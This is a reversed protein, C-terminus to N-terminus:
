KSCRKYRTVAECFTIFEEQDLDQKMLNIWKHVWQVNDKTYGKKSDIRDLSATTEGCWDGKITNSIGIPLGTLACRCSQERYLLDYLFGKSEKDSEGLDLILNRKKAGYKIRGWIRSNLRGKHKHNSCRRCSLSKGLSLHSNYVSKEIGCECKCAWFTFRKDCNEDKRLVLWKGFRKGTLDEAENLRKWCNFCGEGGGNILQSSQVSKELGCQCRCLWEGNERKLVTWRGIFRGTLDDFRSNHYCKNCQTTKGNILSSGNIYKEIGCECQCLWRNSKRNFNQELCLVLWRGFKKGTLDNIKMVGSAIYIIYIALPTLKM